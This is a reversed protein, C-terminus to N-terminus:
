REKIPLSVHGLSLGGRSKDFSTARGASKEGPAPGLKSEHFMLAVLGM